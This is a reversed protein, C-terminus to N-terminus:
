RGQGGQGGQGGFASRLRQRLRESLLRDGEDGKGLSEM